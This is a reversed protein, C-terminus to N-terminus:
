RMAFFKHGEITRVHTLKKNNEFFRRHKPHTINKNYFFLVNNYSNSKIVSRCALITEPTPRFRKTKYNIYGQFQGKQELVSSINNPFKEHHVRNLIVQAVLKKHEYSLDHAEQEVTYILKNFDERSITNKTEPKIKQRIEPESKSESKLEVVFVGDSDESVDPFSNSSLDLNKNYLQIQQAQFSTFFLSLFIVALFPLRFYNM